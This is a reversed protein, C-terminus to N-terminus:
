LDRLKIKVALVFTFRKCEYPNNQLQANHKDEGYHWVFRSSLIREGVRDSDSPRVFIIACMAHRSFYRRLFTGFVKAGTHAMSTNVQQM